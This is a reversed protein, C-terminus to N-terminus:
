PDSGARREGAVPHLSAHRSVEIRTAGAEVHLGIMEELAAASEVSGLVAGLFDARTILLLVVDSTATVTATRPIDHMLAIEGFCDGAGLERLPAGRRTVRLTGEVVVHFTEGPDGERVIAAGAAFPVRAAVRALKELSTAPLPSFLPVAAIAAVTAQPVDTDRDLRVLHRLLIAALVPLLLGSLAMSSRFGLLHILAPALISGLGVTTLVGVYFVGFVRGLTRDDALRQMLTFGSVDLVANGIGAVVLSVIAVTTSLRIAVALFPLGWLALGAAFPVGLRRRGVLQVSAAAGALVGAGFAGSLLGIGGDGLGLESIALAVLYVNLMGRVFTQAWFAGVVVRLHPLRSLERIGALLAGSASERVRGAARTPDSAPRAGAALVAGAASVVGAAALALPPGSTALLAGALIPGVLTALGEFTSATVNAAVLEEPSRAILPVLSLEAPRCPAASIGVLVVLAYALAAPGAPRVAWALLMLLVAQVAYVGVLVRHRPFRDTILAGFPLALAAPVMRLLGVVGVATAGGRGYAWVSLALLSALEVVFFGGWALELRWLAPNRFVGAVTVFQRVVSRRLRGIGSGGV